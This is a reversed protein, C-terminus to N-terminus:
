AICWWSPAAWRSITWRTARRSIAKSRATLVSSGGDATEQWVATMGDLLTGQEYTWRVSTSESGEGSLPKERIVTAAMREAPTMQKQQALLSTAWGMAVVAVMARVRVARGGLSISILM